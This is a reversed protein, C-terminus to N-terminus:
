YLRRLEHNVRATAALQASRGRKKLAVLWPAYTAPLLTAPTRMPPKM